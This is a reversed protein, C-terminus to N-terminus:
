KLETPWLRPRDFHSSPFVGILFACRSNKTQVGGIQHSKISLGTAFEKMSKRCVPIYSITEEACRAWYRAKKLTQLKLESSPKGRVCRRSAASTTRISSSGPRM